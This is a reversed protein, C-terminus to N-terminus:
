AQLDTVHGVHRRAAEAHLIRAIVVDLFALGAGDLVTIEDLERGDKIGAAVEGLTGWTAGAAPSVTVRKAGDLADDDFAGVGSMANLHTGRRIWARRVVALNAATTTCVIDCACAEEISTVRGGCDAAFRAAIAADPDACRIERPAFVVRHAALLVRADLGCGVLGISRPTGVALFKSAVAGAAGTRLAAIAAADIIALAEGRIPDGLVAAGPAAVLVEPAARMLGRGHAVLADEIATIADAVTVLTGIESRGLVITPM